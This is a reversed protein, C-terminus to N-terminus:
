ETSSFMESITGDKYARLFLILYSLILPGLILGLAGFVFLGGIMGILVIVSSTGTKRAVIYPRLINDITSVFFICYIAFGVAVGVKGGVLLIAVIPLYVLWPGIMPLMSALISVLTLTLANPIGFILLGLGLALGQIIGVIIYGYIIASTIGKFRNILVSEKEKKFPSIGSVFDGLEEHDRLAFFFVFIIVALNLLVVPLNQLFGILYTIIGSTFNGVFQIIITTLKEQFEIQSTPFISKVLLSFDVSQTLTFLKFIQEVMIPMLIWLPVVIIVLVIFCMLLASINRQNVRKQVRRYLPIFIYALVLGGIISLAITRLILFSLLLLVLLLGTIFIRRVDKTSLAM